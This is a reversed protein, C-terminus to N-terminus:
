IQKSMENYANWGTKETTHFDESAQKISATKSNGMELYVLIRSYIAFHLGVKYKLMGANDLKEIQENYMHFYEFVTM